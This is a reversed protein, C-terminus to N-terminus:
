FHLHFGVNSLPQSLQLLAITATTILNTVAYARAWAQYTSETKYFSMKKDKSPPPMDATM